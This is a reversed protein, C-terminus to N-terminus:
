AHAYLWDLLDELALPKNFLKEIVTGCIDKQTFIASVMAVHLDPRFKKAEEALEFGNMPNMRGDTVLWGCKERKILDLAEPGSAATVVRWGNQRLSLGLM